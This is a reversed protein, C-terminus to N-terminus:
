LEIDRPPSRDRSIDLESAFERLPSHAFFDVLSDGPPTLQAYSEASLIVVADKGHRTVLQPGQHLANEVLESFKNKAEQLQWKRM